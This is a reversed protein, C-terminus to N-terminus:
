MFYEILSQKRVSLKLFSKIAIGISSSHSVELCCLTTVTFHRVEKINVPEAFIQATDKEQLQDLTSRLLVLMPTLQLELAAQHVKVQM